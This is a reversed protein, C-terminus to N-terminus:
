KTGGTIYAEFAQATEVVTAADASFDVAKIAKDLLRERLARSDPDARGPEDAVLEVNEMWTSGHDHEDWAVYLSDGSVGIGNEFPFVSAVTGLAGVPKEVEGSNHKLHGLFRVRDGIKTPKNATM